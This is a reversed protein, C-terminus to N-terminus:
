SGIQRRLSEFVREATIALMGPDPEPRRKYSTVAAADRLVEMSGGYPGNRAPDTPGFIAVGPKALAAALHLPGSDVGVVATARRTADILGALGSFHATAGTVRALEAAAHEPGDVVLAVGMEDRLLRALAAYRDLPWQKAGWGALPSALVFRGAPLEGEPIGAPLPFTKLVNAAGARAALDLNRDVVHAGQAVVRDSYVLGALPERLQSQHFGYIRTPRAASAVLASQILGQFDVALDYRASRLERWAARLGAWSHRSFWVVRDIFPNGQLLPAWRPNVVWTLCSGPFSHKLSAAAPLAHIVDGMSSLRVVLIRAGSSRVKTAPTYM